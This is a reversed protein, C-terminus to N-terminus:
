RSIPSSRTLPLPVDPDHDLADLWVEMEDAETGLGADIDVEAKAVIEEERKLRAHRQAGTEPQRTPFDQQQYEAIDMAADYADSPGPEM